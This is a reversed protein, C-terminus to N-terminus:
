KYNKKSQIFYWVLGIVILAVGWKVPHSGFFPYTLLGGIGIGVILAPIMCLCPKDCSCAMQSKKAM